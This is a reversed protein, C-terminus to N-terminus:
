PTVPEALVCWAVAAVGYVVAAVGQRLVLAGWMATSSGLSATTSPMAASAVVGLALTVALPVAVLVLGQGMRRRMWRSSASWAARGTTSSAGVHVVAVANRLVVFLAGLLVAIVGVGGALAAWWAGEFPADIVALMGRGYAAIALAGAGGAAYTPLNAVLAAGYRRATASLLQTVTEPAHGRQVAAAVSVATSAAYQAVWAIM